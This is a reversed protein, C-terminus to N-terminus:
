HENSGNNSIDGATFERLIGNMEIWSQGVEKAIEEDMMKRRMRKSDDWQGAEAYINSMLVHAGHHMPDLELIKKTAFEGLEVNRHIRCAGLLAGWVCVDVESGLSAIFEVAENLQGARGLLDVMCGKHVMTPEIGYDNSMSDYIQRGDEVLGAHTCASLVSLFTVSNPKTLEEGVCQMQQFLNVAEKGHGHMALGSIMTTWTFVDREFPGEFVEIAKELCGCKAYMDILATGLATDIQMGIKELYLHVSAGEELLGLHSCASLVSTITVRDPEIGEVLLMKYIKMAEDSQGQRVYGMIMTSCSFNDKNPMREFLLRAADMSGSRAYGAIMSNWSVIDREPMDDFLQRGMDISGIRSYMTILANCIPINLEFGMEKAHDHIVIGFDLRWCGLILSLFTAEDAKVGRLRMETLMELSEELCGNEAFGSIFVNWSVSDRETMDLFLRRGIELCGCKLYMGMLSNCLIVSMEIGEEEIYCHIEKGLDLDRTRGCASLVIALTVQDVKMERWDNGNFLDLAEKLRDNNVFGAILCAWSVENRKSNPMEEYVQRAFEVCGFEAYM